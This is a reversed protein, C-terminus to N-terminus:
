IIAGKAILGILILLLTLFFLHDMNHGVLRVVKKREIVVMDLILTFIFLAVVIAAINSSFSASSVLPKAVAVPTKNANLVQQESLPKAPSQTATSTTEKQSNAGLENGPSAALTTSGFMEVVLVTDEGTLKGTEVAYGVNTYNPSLINARHEPSAMWADVVSQATTFGRALNEGAYVYNYGAAKIFDWPTKGDPSDHAWYDEAFMNNAKNLAAESLNQNLQLPPLGNQQRFQNTLLLLQQSTIDSFTGLVSPFSTRIASMSFSSFFLVAIVAIITKHHLLKARYNNSIHPLFLHHLFKKM